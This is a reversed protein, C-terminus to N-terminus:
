QYCEDHEMYTELIRDFWDALDLEGNDLHDAVSYLMVSAIDIMSTYALGGKKDPRYRKGGGPARKYWHVGIRNEDKNIENIVGVWPRNSRSETYIIVDLGLKADCFMSGEQLEDPYVKGWLEPVESYRNQGIPIADTLPKTFKLLDGLRLTKLRARQKELEDYTRELAKWKSKTELVKDASLLPIYKTHVDSLVEALGISHFRFPSVELVANELNHYDEILQIGTKPLWEKDTSLVKARFCVIQKEPQNALSESSIKFSHYGSHYALRERTLRPTIFKKWDSIYYLIDVNAKPHIPAEELYRVLEDLSSVDKGKLFQAVISFLQDVEDHTHGVLMYSMTIEQFVGVSVLAALYSFLFINKCERWCNDASLHLNPPLFGHEKQHSQIM